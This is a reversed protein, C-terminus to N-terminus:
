ETCFALAWLAMVARLTCRGADALHRTGFVPARRIRAKPVRMRSLPPTLVLL